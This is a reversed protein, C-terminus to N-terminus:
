KMWVPMTSHNSDHVRAGETRTEPGQQWCPSDRRKGGARQQADRASRREDRLDVILDADWAARNGGHDFDLIQVALRDIERLEHSM